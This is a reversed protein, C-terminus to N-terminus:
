IEYLNSFAIMWEYSFGKFKEKDIIGPSEEYSEVPCTTFEVDFNDTDDKSKLVPVFPAKIKRQM